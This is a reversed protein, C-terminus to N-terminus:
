LVATYVGSGPACGASVLESTRGYRSFKTDASAAEGTGVFTYRAPELAPGCTRGYVYSSPASKKILINSFDKSSRSTVQHSM